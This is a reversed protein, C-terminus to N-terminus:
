NRRWLSALDDNDRLEGGYKGSLRRDDADDPLPGATRSAAMKSAAARRAVRGNGPDYIFYLLTHLGLGVDWARARNRFLRYLMMELPCLARDLFTPKREFVRALYLGVPKVLGVVIALFITYELWRM